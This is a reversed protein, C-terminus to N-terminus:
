FSYLDDFDAIIAPQCMIKLKQSLEMLSVEDCSFSTICEIIQPIILSSISKNSSDTSKNKFSVVDDNPLPVVNSMMGVVTALCVLDYKVSVDTIGLGICETQSTFRTHGIEVSSGFDFLVVRPLDNGSNSTFYGINALKIDGHVYGCKFITIIASLVSITVRCIICDLSALNIDYLVPMVSLIFPVYPFILISNGEHKPVEDIKEIPFLITKCTPFKSAIFGTTTFEKLIIESSALKACFIHLGKIAFYITAQGGSNIISDLIYDTEKILLMKTTRSIVRALKNLIFKFTLDPSLCFELRDSEPLLRFADVRFADPNIRCRNIFNDKFFKVQM